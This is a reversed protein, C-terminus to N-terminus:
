GHAGVPRQAGDARMGGVWVAVAAVHVFKLWLYLSEMTVEEEDGVTVSRPSQIDALTM